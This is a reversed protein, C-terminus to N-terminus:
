RGVTVEIDDAKGTATFGDRVFRIGDPTDVLGINKAAKEWYPRGAGLSVGKVALLFSFRHRVEEPMESCLGCQLHMTNMNQSAQYIGSCSAPFYTSGKQRKEVAIHACHRCRIGVQNLVIPKNRGRKHTYTDSATARFAEIQQRLFIQHPSLRQADASSFLVVPLDVPFGDSALVPMKPLPLEVSGIAPAPAAVSSDSFRAATDARFRNSTTRSDDQVLDKSLAANLPIQHDQRASAGPNVILNVLRTMMNETQVGAAAGPVQQQQLRRMATDLPDMRPSQRAHAAARSEAQQSQQLLEILQPSLGHNISGGFPQPRDSGVNSPHQQPVLGALVFQQWLQSNSGEPSPQQQYFTPSNSTSLLSALVNAM